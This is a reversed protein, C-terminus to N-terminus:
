QQLLQEAQAQELVGVRVRLFRVAHHLVRFRDGGSLVRMATGHHQHLVVLLGQRDRGCVQLPLLDVDLEHGLVQQHPVEIRQAASELLRVGLDLEGGVMAAGVHRDHQHLRVHAGVEVEDPDGVERDVLVGLDVHVLHARDALAHVGHHHPQVRHEGPQQIVQLREGIGQHDAEVGAVLGHDLRHQPLEGGGPAERDGERDALVRDGHVLLPVAGGGVVHGPVGLLLVHVAAGVHVHIGVAVAVLAAM